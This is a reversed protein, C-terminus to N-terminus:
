SRRDECGEGGCQERRKGESRKGEGRKGEGRKGEGRKGEGRKGEGRKGEGRKREHRQRVQPTMAPKQKRRIPVPSAVLKPKGTDKIEDLRRFYHMVASTGKCFTVWEQRSLLGSEDADVQKFIWDTIASIKAASMAECDIM